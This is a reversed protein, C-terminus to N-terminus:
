PTPPTPNIRRDGFAEAAGALFHLIAADTDGKFEDVAGTVSTVFAIVNASDSLDLGDAFGYLLSILQGGAAKVQEKNYESV